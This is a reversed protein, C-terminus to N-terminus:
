DRTRLDLQDQFLLQSFSFCTQTHVSQGATNARRAGAVTAVVVRGVAQRTSEVLATKAHDEVAAAAAVAICPPFPHTSCFTVMTDHHIHAASGANPAAFM